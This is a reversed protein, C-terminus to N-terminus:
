QGTHLHDRKLKLSVFKAIQDRESARHTHTSKEIIRNERQFQIKIIRIRANKLQTKTKNIYYLIFNFASHVVVLPLIFKSPSCSSFGVVVLYPFCIAQAGVVKAAKLLKWFRFSRKNMNKNNNPENKMQENYQIRNLSLPVSDKHLMKMCHQTHKHSTSDIQLKIWCM